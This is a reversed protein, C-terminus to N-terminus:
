SSGLGHLTQSVSELLALVVSGRDAVEVHRIQNQQLSHDGGRPVELDWYCDAGGLSLPLKEADPLDGSEHAAQSLLVIIRDKQVRVMGMLQRVCQIDRLRAKVGDDEIQRRKGELLVDALRFLGNFGEFGDIRLNKDLALDAVDSGPRLDMIGRGVQRFAQGRRRLRFLKDFRRPYVDKSGCDAVHMPHQLAHHLPLRPLSQVDLSDGLDLARRLYRQGEVASRSGVIFIQALRDAGSDVDNM